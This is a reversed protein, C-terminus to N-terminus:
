FCAQQSDSLCHICACRSSRRSSSPTSPACADSSRRMGGGTPPPPRWAASTRGSTAFGNPWCAPSANRKPRTPSPRRGPGPPGPLAPLLPLLPPPPPLLARRRLRTGVTRLHRRPLGRCRNRCQRQGMRRRGRKCTATLMATLMPVPMPTPTKAGRPPLRSSQGRSGCRWGSGCRAGPSVSPCQSLSTRYVPSVVALHSPLTSATFPATADISFLLLARPIYSPESSLLLARPTYYPERVQFDLCADLAVAAGV